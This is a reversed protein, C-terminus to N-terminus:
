FSSNYATLVAAAQVNSILGQVNLNNALFCVKYIYNAATDLDVFSANTAAMQDSLAYILILWNAIPRGNPDQDPFTPLLANVFLALDDKLADAAFDVSLNDYAQFAAEPLTTASAM